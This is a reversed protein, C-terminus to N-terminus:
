ERYDYQAHDCLLGHVEVNSVGVLNSYTGSVLLNISLCRSHGSKRCAEQCKAFHSRKKSNPPPITKVFTSWKLYIGDTLYYAKNYSNGNIDFNMAHAQEEVLRVFVPSRQLV